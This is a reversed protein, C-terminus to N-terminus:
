TQEKKMGEDACRLWARASNDWEALQERDLVVQAALMTPLNITDNGEIQLLEDKRAEVIEVWISTAEAATWM